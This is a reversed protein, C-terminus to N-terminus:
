RVVPSGAFRRRVAPNREAGVAIGIAGGAPATLVHGVGQEGAEQCAGSRRVPLRTRGSRPDRHGSRTRDAVVAEYQATIGVVEGCETWNRVSLFERDTGLDFRYTRTDWEERWGIGRM